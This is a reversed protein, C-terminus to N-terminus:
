HVRATDASSTRGSAGPELEASRLPPLQPNAARLAAVLRHAQWILEFAQAYDRAALCHTAQTVIPTASALAPHKGANTELYTSLTRLSHAVMDEVLTIAAQQDILPNGLLFPGMNQMSPTQPQMRLLLPVLSGLLTMLTQTDQPVAQGPANQAASESMSM